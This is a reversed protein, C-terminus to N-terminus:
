IEYDSVDDITEITCEDWARLVCTGWDGWDGTQRANEAEQRETFPAIYGGRQWGWGWISGDKNIIRVITGNM